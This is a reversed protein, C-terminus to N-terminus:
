VEHRPKLKYQLCHQLSCQFAHIRKSQTRKKKEEEPYIGLSQLIM